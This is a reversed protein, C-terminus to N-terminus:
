EMTLIVKLVGPRAAFEMAEIAQDLKMRRAILSTVDIQKEALARIAERFPGCRSGIVTIEDIVLPSLNLPKGTAITSKLVITGRPRVM